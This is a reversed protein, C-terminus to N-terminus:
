VETHSGPEGCLQRLHDLQGLDDLIRRAVAGDVRCISLWLHEIGAVSAANRASDVATILVAKAHLSLALHVHRPVHARRAGTSQEFHRRVTALDVGREHLAATVAHSPDAVLGMLLHATGVFDSAYGYAESYARSVVAGCRPTLEALAAAVRRPDLDGGPLPESAVMIAYQVINEYQLQPCPVGTADM